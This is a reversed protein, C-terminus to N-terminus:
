TLNNVTTDLLVGVLDQKVKSLNELSSSRAKILDDLGSNEKSIHVVEDGHVFDVRRYTNLVYPIKFLKALRTIYLEEGSM